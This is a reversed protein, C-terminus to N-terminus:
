REGVSVKRSEAAVCSAGPLVSAHICQEARDFTCVPLCWNVNEQISVCMRLSVCVCVCVVSLCSKKEEESILLIQKASHTEGHRHRGGGAQASLQVQNM